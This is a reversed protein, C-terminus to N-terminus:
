PALNYNLILELFPSKVQKNNFFVVKTGIDFEPLYLRFFHVDARLEFGYSDPAEAKSLNEYDAFLGAKIRKIYAFTGLELDPYALPFRYDLLLTNELPGSRPLHSAGSIEPIENTVRYQGNGEQFNFGASFSHHRFLGPFYFQSRFAFFNGQLRPDFLLSRHLLSVSQGFRPALDRPSKIQQRIFSFRNVWPFSIERIFNGPANQLAYRSTYSSGTSLRLAYLYNRRTFSLPIGASFEVKHERWSFSRAAQGQGAVADRKWNLYDLSFVPYLGKFEMGATYESSGLSLNYNYGAQVSFTNLLNNSKLRLGLLYNDDDNIGATPSISHFNFTRGAGKYDAVPYHKSPISEALDKRPTNGPVPASFNEFTNEFPGKKARTLTDLDIRSVNMGEPVFNNFLLSNEKDNYDPHVAGFRAQSLQRIEGGPLDLIFINEIGNYHSQFIVQAGTKGAFQPFSSDFRGAEMVIRFTDSGTEYIGISRGEDGTLMFVIRRGAKDLSPYHLQRSFKQSEWLQEGTTADLMVLSHQNDTGTKVAVIRKGDASLSPSFLRSRRTLQRVKKQELDYINIVSYDRYQYRPDYKLEDWVIKGAAYDFWPILQPGINLLRTVRGASDIRVFAPADGYGRRLCIFAKNELSHPHFYDTKVENERPNLGPYIAPDLKQLQAKWHDELTTATAYFLDANGMGTHKKLSSSFAGPLPSRLIATRLIKRYISDPYSRRIRSAMFYGMRYYDPVNDKFSGFFYKSYSYDKGSLLNARFEREWSPMRGRGAPTLATETIVADGEILWIPISAGFIAFQFEQILPFRIKKTRIVHNIQAVHRLEHAALRTMWDVPENDQPPTTFLEVRRPGMIVFGNSIVTQNQLIVPTKEPFPGFIASEYERLHELINATRQAEASISEPFLLQFHPTEIKKWNLGPPNQGYDVLQARADFSTM